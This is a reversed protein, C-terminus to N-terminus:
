VGFLAAGREFCWLAALAGIVWAAASEMWAPRDGALRRWAADLALLLALFALLGAEIGLNFSLLAAPIEGDPMGIEALAGAFGLGHLLGFLGAVLWAGRRLPGPRDDRSAHPGALEVALLFVTAAIALDVTEQRLRGLGLAALTLTVSHGLTFAVVMRVLMAPGTALLLLGFLFLLHEPSALVHEFGLRAYDRLVAVRSPRAPVVTTPTSPRLIAQFVRGDGFTARVLADTRSSALGEVAVELGALGGPCRTTWRQVVAIGDVEESSEGVDACPTPLGPALRVGPAQTLSTKWTVSIMGDARERLELLAPHLAHAFANAAFWLGVFFALLGKRGPSM